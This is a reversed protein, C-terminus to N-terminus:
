AALSPAGGTFEGWGESEPAIQGGNGNAHYVADQGITRLWENAYVHDVVIQATEGAPIRLGQRIKEEFRKAKDYDNTWLKMKINILFQDQLARKAEESIEGTTPDIQFSIPRDQFLGGDVLPVKLGSALMFHNGLLGDGIRWGMLASAFPLERWPVLTWGERANVLSAGKGNSQSFLLHSQAGSQALVERRFATYLGLGRHSESIWGAGTEYVQVGDDKIGLKERLRSTIKPMVNITGILKSNGDVIGKLVGHKIREEFVAWDHAFLGDEKKRAERFPQWVVNDPAMETKAISANKFFSRLADDHTQGWNDPSYGAERAFSRLTEIDAYRNIIPPLDVTEGQATNYTLKYISM